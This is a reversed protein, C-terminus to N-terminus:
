YSIAVFGRWKERKGKWKKRMFSLGGAFFHGFITGTITGAGGGHSGTSNDFGKGHRQL